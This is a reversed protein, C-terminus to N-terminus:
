SDASDPNQGTFIQHLRKSTAQGIKRGSSTGTKSAIIELNAIVLEGEDRCAKMLEPVSKYEGIIGNAVGATVRTIEQLMKFYIDEVDNGTRVQGVDACFSTDHNTRSVKYPITSIDGTFVSIWESTEQMSVTHHVLCGHTIQLSLLADEVMNEDIVEPGKRARSAISCSNENNDEDASARIAHRVAGQFTRNKANRSKRLLATLGEILYIPKVGGRGLMVKVKNVHDDLGTEWLALNVFDDAKVVVLIHKEERITEPIPIFYGLEENWDAVVKRRWKIVNPLPPNWDVTSECEQTELFRLLQQGSPSQAFSESIDVIIEKVSDKKSARLKNVTDLEVEKQKKLAKAEKEVKKTEKEAQKQAAKRSNEETRKEREDETLKNGKRRAPSGPPMFLEEADRTIRKKKVKTNFTGDLDQIDDGDAGTSRRKKSSPKTHRFNPANSTQGCDEPKSLRHLEDLEDESTTKLALINALISATTFSFGGNQTTLPGVPSPVFRGPPKAPTDDIVIVGDDEEIQWRSTKPSIIGTLNQSHGSWRSIPDEGIRMHDTFETRLIRLPTKDAGRHVCHHVDQFLDQEPPPFRHKWVEKGKGNRSTTDDTPQLRTVLSTPQILVAAQHAPLISASPSSPLIDDSSLCIVEINPPTAM